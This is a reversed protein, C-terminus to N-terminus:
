SFPHPHPILLPFGTSFKNLKCQIRSTAHDLLLKINLAQWKEIWDLLTNKIPNQNILLFHVHTIADMFTIEDALASFHEIGGEFVGATRPGKMLRKTFAEETMQWLKQHRQWHQVYDVIQAQQRAIEADINRVLASCEVDDRFERGFGPRREAKPLKLKHGLRQFQDVLTKVRDIVGRLVQGIAQMDPGFVIQSDQIDAETVLIPAPEECHLAEQLLELTSRVCSLLACALMDDFVNVYQHWEQPAEERVDELELSVTMVLEVINNYHMRLSSNGRNLWTSLQEEFLAIDVAGNFSLQLMSTDCIKECNRAIQLSARKHLQVLQRVYDIHDVCDDLWQSYGESPDVIAGYTLKFIGPALQRDCASILPRLLKREQATLANMIRNYDLCLLLLSNYVYRLTDHREYLKRMPLPVPFGLREFHKAQAIIQLVMPDINCQLLAKPQKGRVLLHRDLKQCLNPLGRDVAYSQQWNDHCMRMQREFETRLLEFKALVPGAEPVVPLWTSSCQLLRTHLRSLRELNIRYGLTRSVHPPLWSLHQKGNAQLLHRTTADMDESFLQWVYSVQRLYCQRLTAHYSYYLMSNLAELAEEVNCAHQFVSSILRQLTEEMHQVSRRYRAVHEYWEGRYVNLMLQKSESARLEDLIQLFKQGVNASIRELQEGSTGSFQAQEFQEVQEIQENEDLRGFVIMAECIDMLDRLREMFANVHNFIIGQDLQWAVNVQMVAMHEKYAQLCDLSLNCMKIGFRPHGDLIEDLNIQETCYKIIQNSLNRFLILIKDNSRYHQSNEWIFRMLHIIRPLLQSVSAPSAAVDIQACPALLLRLFQINSAALQEELKGREILEEIQPIHVSQGQRLVKLIRQLDFQQLQSNLGQLVEM